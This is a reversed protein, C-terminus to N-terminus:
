RLRTSRTMTGGGKVGLGTRRAIEFRTRRKVIAMAVDRIEDERGPVRVKRAHGLRRGAMKPDNERVVMYKKTRPLIMGSTKRRGEMLFKGKQDRGKIEVTFRARGSPKTTVTLVETINRDSHKFKVRENLGSRIDRSLRNGITAFVAQVTLGTAAIKDVQKKVSIMSKADISYETM